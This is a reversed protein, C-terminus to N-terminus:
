VPTRVPIMAVKLDSKKKQRPKTGRHIWNGASLRSYRTGETGTPIHTAKCNESCLLRRARNPICPRHSTSLVIKGRSQSRGTLTDKHARLLQERHWSFAM